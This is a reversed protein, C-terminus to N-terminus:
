YEPSDCSEPPKRVRLMKWLNLVAQHKKKGIHESITQSTGGRARIPVFQEAVEGTKSSSRRGLLDLDVLITRLESGGWTRGQNKLEGDRGNNQGRRQKNNLRVGQNQTVGRIKGLIEGGGLHGRMRVGLVGGRTARL